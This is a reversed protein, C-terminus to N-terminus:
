RRNASEVKYEILDVCREMASPSLESADFQEYECIRADEEFKKTRVRPRRHQDDSYQRGENDEESDSYGEWGVQQNDQQNGGNNNWSTRTGQGGQQYLNDLEECEEDGIYEQMLISISVLVEDDYDGSLERASGSDSGFFECEQDFSQRDDSDSSTSSYRWGRSTRSLNDRIQDNFDVLRAIKDDNGGQKSQM